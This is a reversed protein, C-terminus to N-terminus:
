LASADVAIAGTLLPSDVVRTKLYLSNAYRPLCHMSYIGGAGGCSNKALM